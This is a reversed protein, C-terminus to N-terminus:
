TIDLGRQVARYAAVSPDTGQLVAQATILTNQRSDKQIGQGRRRPGSMQAIVVTKGLVDPVGMSAPFITERTLKDLVMYVFQLPRYTVESGGANAVRIGRGIGPPCDM